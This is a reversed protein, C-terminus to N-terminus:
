EEDSSEIIFGSTVRRRAATRVVPVENDEDDEEGDNDDLVPVDMMTKDRATILADDDTDESSGSASSARKNTIRLRKTQSSRIHPSSSLPTDTAENGSEELLDDRATSSSRHRSHQFGDEDSDSDSLMERASRKTSHSVAGKKPASDDESKQVGQLHQLATRQRLKEEQEFFVRDREEDSEEDSDHIYLDSKIKRLKELERARRADARIKRQEETLGIDDEDSSGSKRRRRRIKKLAELAASKKMATPGGAPFLFEEESDIANDSENDFATRRRAATGASKRRIFDEAEKGDDFVPPNFENQKILDLSQKLQDASLGSPIMWPSGPEDDAGIRQFGVLTMLLRLHGNKFMAAKAADGHPQVVLPTNSFQPL